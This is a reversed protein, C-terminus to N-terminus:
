EYLIALKMYRDGDQLTHYVIVPRGEFIVMSAFSPGNEDSDFTQANTWSSKDNGFPDDSHLFVMKDNNNDRYLFAPRGRYQVLSRLDNPFGPGPVIENMWWEESGDAFSSWAYRVDDNGATYAIAPRGNIMELQVHSGMIGGTDITEKNSWDSLGSGTQTSSRMFTLDDPNGKDRTYVIAPHGDIVNLMAFNYNDTAVLLDIWDASSTGDMTSSHSYYLNDGDKYILAPRGDIETLGNNSFPKDIDSQISISSSWDAPDNGDATTSRIYRLDSNGNNIYSIAPNGAIVELDLDVGIIDTEDTALTIFEWDEVQAPDGNCFAYKLSNISAPIWEGYAFALKGNVIEMSQYWHSTQGGFELVINRWGLVTLVRTWEAQLAGSDTVRLGIQMEGANDFMHPLIPNAGNDTEFTGDGDLDWEYKTITEGFSASSASADLAFAQSKYVGSSDWSFLALPQGIDAGTAMITVSDVDWSGESDTVRFKANYIGPALYAQTAPTLTDTGTEYFGDGDFDWAHSLSSADDENDAALGTFTVDLPTSGSQPDATASAVPRTNGSVLLSLGGLAVREGSGDRGRVRPRILGSASTDATQSGIADDSIEFIGDGDLDWDYLDFGSASLNIAANIGASAASGTLTVSGPAAPLPSASQLSSLASENGTFDVASVAVFTAAKLGSLLHQTSGELYPVTKVGASGPNVFSKSSYHIAYGALDAELVPSWSLELGGNVPTLSLGLPTAPLGTDLPDFQNVGVGVIDLSSGSNVLVSIFTNGLDSTFDGSADTVVPLRVHNDTFPGRWDWRGTGYNSLGVYYESGFDLLNADVSVVGPQAAQISVRYMAYSSNSDDTGNLRLAEGNGAIDGSDLFREVGPTFDTSANISSIGRNGDTRVHGNGDLREWPQLGDAPLVVGNLATTEPLQQVTIGAADPLGVPDQRGASCATLVGILLLTALKTMYSM